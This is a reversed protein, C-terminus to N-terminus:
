DVYMSCFMPCMRLRVNRIMLIDTNSVYIINQDSSLFNLLHFLFRDHQQFLFVLEMLVNGCMWIQVIYYHADTKIEIWEHQIPTSQGLSLTKAIATALWSYSGHLIRCARHRIESIIEDRNGCACVTGHSYSGFAGIPVILLRDGTSAIANSVQKM